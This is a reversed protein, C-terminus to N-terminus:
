RMPSKASSPRSLNDLHLSNQSSSNRSFPRDGISKAKKKSVINITVGDFSHRHFFPPRNQPKQNENVGLVTRPRISVMRFFDIQYRNWIWCQSLTPHTKGITMEDSNRMPCYLSSSWRSAAGWKLSVSAAMLKIFFYFQACLTHWM